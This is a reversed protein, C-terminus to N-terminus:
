TLKVSARLNAAKPSSHFKMLSCTCLGNSTDITFEVFEVMARAPM